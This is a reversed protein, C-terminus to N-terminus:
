LIDGAKWCPHRDADDKECLYISHDRLTATYGQLLSLQVYFHFYSMEWLADLNENWEVRQEVSRV